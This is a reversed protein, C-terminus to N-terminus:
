KKSNLLSLIDRATSVGQLFNTMSSEGDEGAFLTQVEPLNKGMKILVIVSKDERNVSLVEFSWEYNKM